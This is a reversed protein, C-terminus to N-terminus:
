VPMQDEDMVFTAEFRKEKQRKHERDHRHDGGSASVM